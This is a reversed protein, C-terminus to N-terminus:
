KIRAMLNSYLLKEDASWTNEAKSMMADFKKFEDTTLNIVNLRAIWNDIQKQMDTEPDRASIKKALKAIQDATIAHPVIGSNSGANLRAAAYKRYKDIGFYILTGSVGITAVLGVVRVIKGKKDLDNWKKM